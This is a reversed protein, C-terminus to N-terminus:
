FTFNSEIKTTKVMWAKSEINSLWDQANAHRGLQLSVIKEAISRIPVPRVAGPNLLFGYISEAEFIGISHSRLAFSSWKTEVNGEWEYFWNVLDCLARDDVDPISFYKKVAQSIFPSDPIDKKLWLPKRMNVLWDNATALFSCDEEIHQYLVEATSVIKGDSLNIEYGLLKTATEVGEIHHRLARHRFNWFSSKTSDLYSHIILYDEIRGGFRKSSSLAHHYPHAM